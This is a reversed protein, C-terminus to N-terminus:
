YCSGLQVAVRMVPVAVLRHQWSCEIHQDHLWKRSAMSNITCSSQQKCHEQAHQVQLPLVMSCHLPTVMMIYSIPTIITWAAAPGLVSTMTNPKLPTTSHRINLKATVLPCAHPALQRFLSLLWCFQSGASGRRQLTNCASLRHAICANHRNRLEIAAVAAAAAAMSRTWGLHTPLTPWPSDVGCDHNDRTIDTYHATGAAVDADICRTTPPQRWDVVTHKSRLGGNQQESQAM